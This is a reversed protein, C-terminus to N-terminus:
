NLTIFGSGPPRNDMLTLGFPSSSASGLLQALILGTRLALSSAKVLEKFYSQALGLNPVILLNMALESVKILNWVQGEIPIYLIVWSFPLLVFGLHDNPHIRGVFKDKIRDFFFAFVESKVANFSDFDGKVIVFATASWLLYHAPTLIM